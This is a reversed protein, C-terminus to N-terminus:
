KDFSQAYMETTHSLIRKLDGRKATAGSDLRVTTNGYKAREETAGPARVMVKRDVAARITNNGFDLTATTRELDNKEKMLVHTATGLGLALASAFSAEEDQGAKISEITVGEVLNDKVFSEPLVAAGDDDFTIAEEVKLALTKIRESVKNLADSM